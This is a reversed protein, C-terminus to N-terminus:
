DKPEILRRAEPDNWMSELDPCRELTSYDWFGNVIARRLLRLAERSDGLLAAIRARVHDAKGYSFPGRPQSLALMQALAIDVDGARAAALGIVKSREFSDPWGDASELVMAYADDARGALYLADSRCEVFDVDGTDSSGAENMVDLALEAVGTAADFRGHERLEEAVVVLMRALDVPNAGPQLRADRTSVELLELDGLAALATLGHRLVWLRDFTRSSTLGLRDIVELEEEHRGLRHYARAAGTFTLEKVQNPLIPDEYQLGKFADIAQQPRNARLASDIVYLGAICNQPDRELVDQFLRAAGKWNGDVRFLIGALINEQSRSLRSRDIPLLRPVHASLFDPDVVGPRALTLAGAWVLRARVFDPDLELAKDVQALTEELPVVASVEYATRFERYADIRPWREGAAFALSPHLHDQVAVLAQDCLERYADPLADRSASLPGLVGVVRGSAAEELTASFELLDGRQQWGGSLVLGADTAAAIRQIEPSATIPYASRKESRVVEVEDLRALATALRVAAITGVSEAEGCNGMCVFPVVAIRHPILDPSLFGRDSRVVLLHFGLITLAVVAALVALWAGRRWARSPGDIRAPTRTRRAQPDRAAVARLALALDHASYFRDEPRKELCRSVILELDPPVRPELPPPDGNLVMAMTEGTTSGAFPRRGSLMEYLAVGFAFIDARRDAPLGRIQEPSMCGPTGAPDGPQTDGRGAKRSGTDGNRNTDTELLTAIGFDLLKVQGDRTLFLNGTKFDRHVIGKEHAAELGRAAQIAYEVANNVTLKGARIRNRLSEGELLETVIFPRGDWTGVDYIAVINPHSVAAMARAESNYRQLRAWDTALERKLVKVAVERGLREDYALYVVGMGGEGLKEVLRYAGVRELPRENM